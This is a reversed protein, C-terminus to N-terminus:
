QATEASVPFLDNRHRNDASGASLCQQFQRESQRHSGSDGPRHDTRRRFVDHDHCLRRSRAVPRSLRRCCRGHDGSHCISGLWLPRDVTDLGISGPKVGALLYAASQVAFVLALGYKRGIRDSIMGFALGSFLSFFGAWSWYLGAKAESFGYERVMTTVIFTGYVMFTAGFALYLLGLRLLLTGDGRHESPVLQDPSLPTVAAM